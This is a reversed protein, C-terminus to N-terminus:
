RFGIEDRNATSEVVDIDVRFWDREIRRGNVDFELRNARRFHRELASALADERARVGSRAVSERAHSDAISRDIAISRDRRTSDIARSIATPRDTM